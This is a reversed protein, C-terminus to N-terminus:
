TNKLPIKRYTSTQLQTQVKNIKKEIKQGSNHPEIVHVRCIQGDYGHRNLVIRCPNPHLIQTSVTFNKENSSICLELWPSSFNFFLTVKSNSNPDQELEHENGEYDEAGDSMDVDADMEGEGDPIDGEYVEHEQEEHQEM